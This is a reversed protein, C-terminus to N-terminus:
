KFRSMQIQESSSARSLQEFCGEEVELREGASQLCSRKDCVEWNESFFFSRGDNFVEEM